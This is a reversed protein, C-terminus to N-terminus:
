ARTWGWFNVESANAPLPAVAFPPGQSGAGAAYLVVQGGAPLTVNWAGPWGAPQVVVDGPQWALTAGEPVLSADEVTLPEGAESYVQVFETAGNVRSASVLFGGAVRLGAFSANAWAAPTAPFISVVPEDHAQVLMQHVAYAASLPSEINPSQNMEGYLTAAPMLTDFFASVNGAAADARLLYASLLAVGGYTFGNPCRWPWSGGAPGGPPADGPALFTRCTVGSYRDVSAAMAARRAEDAGRWTWDHLPLIAFLHSWHRHPISFSVNASVKLGGDSAEVPYATLNAAIDLWAPLLPDDISFRSALSVLTRAGWRLLALDWSTDPGKLPYEPSETVPLHLVGVDGGTSNSRVLFNRYWQVAGRLLPFVQDRLLTANGVSRAHLYTNHVLWLLCGVASPPASIAPESVLDPAIAGQLAFSLAGASANNNAAGANAALTAAREALWAGWVASLDPRNAALLGWHAVQSNMDAWFLAWRSHTYWPGFLDLPQGDPTAAAAVKALQYAFFGEMRTDPLTVFPSAAWRAAWAAEHSALLAAAGATAAASVTAAAVASSGTANVAARNAISAFLVAAGTLRLPPSPSPASSSSFAGAGGGTVTWATAYDGGGLLSQTCTSVGGADPGVVVPPPNPVYQPAWPLVQSAGLLPVFQLTVAEGATVNLTAVVVQEEAHVFVLFDVRGADTELYGKLQAGVLVHRIHGSTVNGLPTLLFYGVPLRPRDYLASNLSYHSGPARTDWVDSRSVDLRLSSGWGTARPSSSPSSPLGSSNATRLTAGLLGNGAWASQAFTTPARDYLGKRWVTGDVCPSLVYWSYLTYMHDTANFQVAPCWENADCAALAADLGEAESVHDLIRYFPDASTQVCFGENKSYARPPNDSSPVSSWSWLPDHRQLFTAWDVSVNVFPSPPSALASSSSAGAGVLLLLHSLHLPM